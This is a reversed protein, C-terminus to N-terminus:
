FSLLHDGARRDFDGRQRSTPTVVYLCLNWMELLPHFELGSEQLM